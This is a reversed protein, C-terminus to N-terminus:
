PFRNERPTLVLKQSSVEKLYKELILNLPIELSLMKGTLM